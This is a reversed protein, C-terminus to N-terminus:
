QLKEGQNFLRQIIFLVSIFCCIPIILYVWGLPLRIVPTFQGFGNQAFQISVWGFGGVAVICILDLLAAYPKALRPPLNDSIITTALNAHHYFALAIGTYISVTFCSMLIDELWLVSTSFLSRAIVQWGVCIFMVLLAVVMIVALIKALVGCLKSFYMM